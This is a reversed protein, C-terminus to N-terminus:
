FPDEVAKQFKPMMRTRVIPKNKRTGVRLLAMKPIKFQKRERLQLLAINSFASGGRVSGRPAAILQFLKPTGDSNMNAM